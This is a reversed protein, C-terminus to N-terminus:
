QLDRITISVLIRPGPKAQRPRRAIHHGQRHEQHHVSARGHLHRADPDVAVTCARQRRASPPWGHQLTYSTCYLTTTSHLSTRMSTLRCCQCQGVSGRECAASPVRGLAPTSVPRARQQGHLQEDRRERAPGRELSTGAAGRVAGSNQAPPTEVLVSGTSARHTTRHQLTCTSREERSVV